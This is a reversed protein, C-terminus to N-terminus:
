NVIAAREEKSICRALASSASSLAIGLYAAAETITYGFVLVAEKVFDERARSLNATRGRGRVAAVSVNHKSATNGIVTDLSFLGEKMSGRHNFGGTVSLEGDSIQFDHSIENLYEDRTLFLACSKHFCTLDDMCPAVIEKHGCWPYCDLETISGVVGHKLPNKNVYTFVTRCYEESGALRSKYRGQFLYGVRNYKENFHLSYGTLARRMFTALPTTGTETLLHFHNPLFSWAHIKMDTERSLFKLRCLFDDYDEPDRFIAERNLGRSIVHQLAGQADYRAQRGM